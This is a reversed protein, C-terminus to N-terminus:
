SGMATAADAHLEVILAWIESCLDEDRGAAILADADAGMYGEEVDVTWLPDNLKNALACLGVVAIDRTSYPGIVAEMAPNDFAHEHHYIIVFM